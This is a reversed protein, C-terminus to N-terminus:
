VVSKRDPEKPDEWYEPWPSFDDAIEAGRYLGYDWLSGEQIRLEIWPLQSMRGLELCYTFDSGQYPIYVTHHIGDSHFRFDQAHTGHTGWRLQGGVALATREAYARFEATSGGKYLRLILRESM